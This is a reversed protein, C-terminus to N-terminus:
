EKLINREYVSQSTYIGNKSLHKEHRLAFRVECCGVQCAASSHLPVFGASGTMFRVSNMRGFSMHLATGAKTWM